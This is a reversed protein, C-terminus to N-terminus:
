YLGINKQTLLFFGRYRKDAKWSNQGAQRGDAEAYYSYFLRTWRYSSAVAM